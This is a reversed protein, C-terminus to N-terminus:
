EQKVINGREIQGSKEVIEAISLHEAEVKSIKIAGVKEEGFAGLEKGTDPDTLQLAKVFVGLRNGKMIGDGAGLNIYVENDKLREGTGVYIIKGEITALKSPALYETVKSVIQDMVDMTAIGFLTRNKYEDSGLKIKDLRKYDVIPNRAKIDEDAEKTDGRHYTMPGVGMYFDRLDKRSSVEGNEIEDGTNDYIIINTKITSSYFFGGVGGMATMNMGRGSAITTPGQSSARTRHQQFKRIDGVIMFDADLKKVLAALDETGIDQLTKDVYDSEVIAYGSETLKENLMDRFGTDLEWKEQQRGSGFIVNLPWIALCGGGSDFRSNDTFYLVAVKGGDQSSSSFCLIVTMILVFMASIFMRFRHTLM